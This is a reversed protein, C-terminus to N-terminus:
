NIYNHFRGIDNMLNLLLSIVSVDVFVIKKQQYQIEDKVNMEEDNFCESKSFLINSM